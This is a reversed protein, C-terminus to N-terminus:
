DHLTLVIAIRCRDHSLCLFHRSHHQEILQALVVQMHENQTRQLVISTIAFRVFVNQCILYITRIIDNPLLDTFPVGISKAVATMSMFCTTHGTNKKAAPPNTPERITPMIKHYLPINKLCSNHSPLTSYTKRDINIPMITM